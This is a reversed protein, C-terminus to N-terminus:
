RPAGKQLGGNAKSTVVTVNPLSEQRRKGIKESLHGLTVSSAKLNHYCEVSYHRIRGSCIIRHKISLIVTRNSTGSCLEAV